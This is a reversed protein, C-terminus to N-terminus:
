IIVHYIINIGLYYYYIYYLFYIEKIIPNLSPKIKQRNTQKTSLLYNTESVDHDSSVGYRLANNCKHILFIIHIEESKQEASGISRARSM